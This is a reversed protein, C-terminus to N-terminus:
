HEALIMAALEAQLKRINARIGRLAAYSGGIRNLDIIRLKISWEEETRSPPLADMWQRVRRAAISTKM